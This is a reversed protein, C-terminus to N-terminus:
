ADDTPRLLSGRRIATTGFQDRIADVARDLQSHREHEDSGFLQGQVADDRSLKTAAVGLLRLPLIDSAARAFLEEAAQWLEQTVNTLRPLSQARTHTHFDSSRLKLGITQARIGVRRLRAALQDVLDLLWLRLVERDGIDEAFTTETSISKAERDPVVRRDDEGHALRWLHSGVSGFHDILVREPRAALDAVTRIGLAQLRKEGKAGVGWLRSVPLPTLFGAVDERRVVLLGDPKSYDSALKALFKNLAVGVSATLQTEAKIREKIRRAIEPGLGFM